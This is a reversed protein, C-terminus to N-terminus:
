GVLDGAGVELLEDLSGVRGEAVGIDGRKVAYSLLLPDELEEVAGRERELVNRELEQTVQELVEELALVNALDSSLSLSESDNSSSRSISAPSSSRPSPPSPDPASASEKPSLAAM